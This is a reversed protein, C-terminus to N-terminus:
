LAPYSHLQLHLCPRTLSRHNPDAQCCHHLYCVLGDYFIVSVNLKYLSSHLLRPWSATLFSAVLSRKVTNESRTVTLNRSLLPSESHRVPLHHRRQLYAINTTVQLLSFSVDNDGKDSAIGRKNGLITPALTEVQSSVGRTARVDSAMVIGIFLTTLSLVDRNVVSGYRPFDQFGHFGRLFHLFALLPHQLKCLDLAGSLKCPLSYKLRHGLKDDAIVLYLLSTVIITHFSSVSSARGTKPPLLCPWMGSNNSKWSAECLWRRGEM